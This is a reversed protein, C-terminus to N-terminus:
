ASPKSWELVPQRQWGLAELRRGVILMMHDSFETGIPGAVQPDGGDVVWTRSGTRLFVQSCGTSRERYTLTETPPENPM